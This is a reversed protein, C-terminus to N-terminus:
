KYHLIIRGDLNQLPGLQSLKFKLPYGGVIWRVPNYNETTKSGDYEYYECPLDVDLTTLDVSCGCTPKIVRGIALTNRGDPSVGNCVDTSGIPLYKEGPFLEVFVYHLESNHIKSCIEHEGPVHFHYEDLQYRVCNVEVVIPNQVRFVHTDPEYIAGCNRGSIKIFQSIPSQCVPICSM